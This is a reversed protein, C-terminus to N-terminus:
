GAGELAKATRHIAAARAHLAAACRKVEEKNEALWYGSAPSSMIPAGQRRELSIRSTIDRISQGTIRSLTAAKIANAEGHLLFSAISGPQATYNIKLPVSAGLDLHLQERGDCVTAATTAAEKKKKM